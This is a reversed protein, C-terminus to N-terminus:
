RTRPRQKTVVFRVMSRAMGPRVRFSAVQLTKLYDALEDVSLLTEFREQHHLPAGASVDFGVLRGGPRLVRIAESVTQQWSGTHHLMLLSVVFDFSEDPFPLDNADAEKVDVRTGFRHLTQSAVACMEPDFDTVVMHVGPNASLVHYAMAGVGGGIELVDGTPRIGQLAWPAILRSALLRYPRSAMLRRGHSGM